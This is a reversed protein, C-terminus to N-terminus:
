SLPMILYTYADGARFFAPNNGDILELSL